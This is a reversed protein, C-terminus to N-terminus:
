WKGKSKTISHGWIRPNKNSVKIGEIPFIQYMYLPPMIVRFVIINNWCRHIIIIQRSYTNLKEVQMTITITKFQKQSNNSIDSTQFPCGYLNFLYIDSYYIGTWHWFLKIVKKSEYKLNSLLYKNLPVANIERNISNMTVNTLFINLTLFVVFMLLGFLKLLSQKNYNPM